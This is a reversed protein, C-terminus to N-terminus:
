FAQDGTRVERDLKPNNLFTKPQKQAKLGAPGMKNLQDKIDESDWWFLQIKWDHKPNLM